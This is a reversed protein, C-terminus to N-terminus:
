LPPPPACTIMDILLINAKRPASTIPLDKVDPLFLSALGSVISAITSLRARHNISQIFNVPAGAPIQVRTAPHFGPIIVTSCWLLPSRGLYLECIISHNSDNKKLWSAKGLSASDCNNTGFNLSHQLNDRRRGTMSSKMSEGYIGM